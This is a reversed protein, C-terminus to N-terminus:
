ETGNTDEKIEVKEMIVELNGNTQWVPFGEKIKWPLPKYISYLPYGPDFYQWTVESWGNCHTPDQWFGRSGPYPVSAAFTGGFCLVRWVEDLIDISLWPKVHELFHSAIAINVSEDEIPWPFIELDHVIDVEPLARIDIGTFGEQKNGGCAIDLKIM